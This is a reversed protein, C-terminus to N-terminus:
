ITHLQQTILNATSQLVRFLILVALYNYNITVKLKFTIHM